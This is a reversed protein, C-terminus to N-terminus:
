RHSPGAAPRHGPVHSRGPPDLRAGLRNALGPRANQEHVVLPVRPSARRPLGPHQRLRRVGRRCRRGDRRGGGRRGPREGCEGSAPCTAPPGGRSPSRQCSRAPPLRARARAPGSPRGRHRPRHGAGRPRAPAPLRRPRAAARCPRRHWWRRPPRVPRVATVGRVAPRPAAAPRVRLSRRLVALSGRVAGRRLLTRARAFSPSDGARVLDHGPFGGSSVLPLPVGIVPLFKMVAGINILAQGLIWTM